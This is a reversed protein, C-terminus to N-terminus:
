KLAAAEELQTSGGNCHSKACRPLSNSEATGVGELGAAHLAGM